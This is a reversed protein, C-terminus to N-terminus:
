MTPKEDVTETPSEEDVTEPPSEEEQTADIMDSMRDDERDEVFAVATDIDMDESQFLLEHKIGQDNLGKVPNLAANQQFLLKHLVRGPM